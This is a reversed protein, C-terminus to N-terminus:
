VRLGLERQAATVLFASRNPAVRDIEALVDEPIMVNVRKQKGPVCADLAFTTLAGKAFPHVLLTEAASPKPIREGDEIMGRIHLNLAEKALRLAEDLDAGATVCGPFDPFSVGYESAPDKHILGIYSVM